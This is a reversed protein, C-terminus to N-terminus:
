NEFEVATEYGAPGDTVEQIFKFTIERGSETIVKTRGEELVVMKEVMEKDEYASHYVQQEEGPILENIGGMYKMVDEKNVVQVITASGWPQVEEETAEPRKVCYIEGEIVHFYEGTLENQWIGNFDGTRVVETTPSNKEEEIADIWEQPVEPDYGMIEKNGCSAFSVMATLALVFAILRKM